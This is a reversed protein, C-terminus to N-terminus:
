AEGEKSQETPTSSVRGHWNLLAASTTIAHHRFKELDGQRLAALAKGALYGVVWYTEEPTKRDDHSAGWRTIQHAAERRVGAIFDDTEPGDWAERSKALTAELESVKDKLEVVRRSLKTQVDLQEPAKYRSASVIDAAIEDTTWQKGSM